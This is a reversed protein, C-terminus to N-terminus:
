WRHLLIVPEKRNESDVSNSCVVTLVVGYSYTTYRFNTDIFIIIYLVRAREYPSTLLSLADDTGAYVSFGDAM